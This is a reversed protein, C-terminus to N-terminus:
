RERAGEELHQMIPSLLFEIIKRNGTKIEATVAMGSSLPVIRGNVNISNQKLAVKIPFVLGLQEHEIADTSVHTVIGEIIGYRTFPFSEIKVEVIQGPYTFGIDKNLLGAEVILEADKPVITLLEQAPTVVGGVTTVILTEVTGKVPAYLKAQRALFRSKILEQEISDIQQKIDTLELYAEKVFDAKKADKNHTVSQIASKLRSINAEEILVEQELEIEEQKLMLYQDRAVLKQKELSALSATREYILPLIKNLKKLNIKTASLEAFNRNIDANLMAQSSTYLALESSLVLMNEKSLIRSENTEIQRNLDLEKKEQKISDILIRKRLLNQKLSNLQKTLRLIEAQNIVPEFELLIQGKEVDQGEAIHISKIIGSEIAQIIKVQHKPIVKGQASAVIDLKGFYAWIITIILLTVLSWLIARAGKPPPAAQIELAAPLFEILCRDLKEIKPKPM